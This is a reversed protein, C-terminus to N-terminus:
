KLFAKIVKARNKGLNTLTYSEAAAPVVFTEAYAFTQETGNAIKITIASGEVLMMVHCQNHTEVLIEKDFEMRHVDYFHEQHTPVHILQWGEGEQIVEQKSILEAHVREGKRDFNLNNFAHEINIPRPNGDLDLRLWDYMKFTFIYPTASIELVLNNAGASHVTGNPILFLDHKKAAHAQVYNTIEVEKNDRQSIELVSRFEEPQINEQFGLYVEAKDKCDLIYYTEDQTITEGFNDQIYKLSPHCQISLNGGDYTDLFDFRIPFEDGFKQAHIGLVQQQNNFMLFDFSVELLYGDSEFVLGNEPVILEFSWAYNVVDKNIKEIHERIWHGGWAGPEFWPRVRIVSQSLNNLGDVLDTKHMWNIDDPWQGDAIISIQDLIQKKQNNLLVWDVFYFRKYMYFAENAEAAGLNTIAGARMRFQLENKPLDIYIIPADWDILTAGIGMVINIDVAESPFQEKLSNLEYLDHLSLTCKTGWVADRTGMFPEVLTEVEEEPKLYASTKVWNVTLGDAIFCENLSEKIVNWLVGAYGDIIVTKKEIIYQALSHYGNLIKGGGLSCVPYINYGDQEINNNLRVPMLFQSTKRFQEYSTKNLESTLNSNM